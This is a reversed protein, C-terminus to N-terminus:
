NNKESPCASKRFIGPWNLVCGRYNKDKVFACTLHLYPQLVRWVKRKFETASVNLIVIKYGDEVDNIFSSANKYIQSYVNKKLLKAVIKKKSTRKSTSIYLIM